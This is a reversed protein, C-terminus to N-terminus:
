RSFPHILRAGLRDPSSMSRALRKTEEIGSPNHLYLPANVCVCSKGSKHYLQKHKKPCEYRVFSMHSQMGQSFHTRTVLWQGKLGPKELSASSPGRRKVQVYLWVM